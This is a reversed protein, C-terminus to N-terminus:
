ETMKYFSLIDKLAMVTDKDLEYDKYFKGSLRVKIKPEASILMNEMIKIDEESFPLDIIESVLGGSIVTTEKDYSRFTFEIRRGNNNLITAQEFFIWSGGYYQFRIRMGKAIQRKVIYLEVPKSMDVLSQFAIKHQYFSVGEFEDYRVYIDSKESVKKYNKPISVCGVCVVVLLLVFSSTLKLWIKENVLKNM